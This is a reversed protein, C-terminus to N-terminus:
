PSALSIRDHASDWSLLGYGVVLSDQSEGVVGRFWLKTLQASCAFIYTSFCGLLEELMESCGGLPKLLVRESPAQAVVVLPKAEM